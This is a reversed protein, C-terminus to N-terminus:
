KSLAASQSHEIMEALTVEEGNRRQSEDAADMFAFIEVTEEQPVPVQLTRFFRCIELLLDGYGSYKGVTAQGHEAGVEAEYPAKEAGAFTGERGDRWTGVATYKDVRRVSQCGSGMITFLSEVGHIGYWYFDPHHPEFSCPSKAICSKVKGLPSESKRLQQYEPVYRLSSASWVPTNHEKALEFIALVDALSAAMPKDIFLPKRAEIVPKAQALHPRGDVSELFMVDVEPLMAEISDVIRVDMQRLQDTYMQVRDASSPIDSSGGPFATVVEIGTVLPLPQNKRLWDTFAPVHSTDLGIMGAKIPKPMANEVPESTDTSDALTTRSRITGLMALLSVSTGFFQRRSTIFDM